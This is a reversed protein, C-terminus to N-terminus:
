LLDITGRIPARCLPCREDRLKEICGRCFRAHTCPLILVNRKAEFCISCTNERALAEAKTEAVALKSTVDRIREEGVDLRTKLENLCCKMVDFMEDDGMLEPFQTLPPPAQGAPPENMSLLTRMESGRRYDM